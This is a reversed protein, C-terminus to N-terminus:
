LAGLYHSIFKFDDSVFPDHGQLLLIRDNAWLIRFLWSPGKRFATDGGLISVTVLKVRPYLTFPIM